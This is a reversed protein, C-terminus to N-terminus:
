FYSKVSLVIGSIISLVGLFRVVGEVWSVHRVVKQVIIEIADTRRIHEVLSQHQNQLTVDQRATNRDISDLKKEIRDMRQMLIEILKETEM